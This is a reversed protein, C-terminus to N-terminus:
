AGSWWRLSSQNDPQRDACPVGLVGRHDRGAKEAVEVRHETHTFRLNSGEPTPATWTVRREITGDHCAVCGKGTPLLAMSGDTAGAHCATCPPWNANISICFNNLLNKKGGYVPEDHGALTYPGSEWTWHSTQM